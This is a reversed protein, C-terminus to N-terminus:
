AMDHQFCSRDLRNQYIYQLDGAEEFKQIIEKNKTATWCASYTFDPQRLHVEPMYKDQALLTKSLIEKMKYM